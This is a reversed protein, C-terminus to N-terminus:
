SGDPVNRMRAHDKDSFRRGSKPIMRLRLPRSSLCASGSLAIRGGHLENAGASLWSKGIQM